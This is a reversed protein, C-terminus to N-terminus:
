DGPPVQPEPQAKIREGDPTSKHAVENVAYQFTALALFVYPKAKPPIVPDWINAAHGLIASLQLLRSQWLKM